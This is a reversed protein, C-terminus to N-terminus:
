CGQKSADEWVPNVEQLTGKQMRMTRWEFPAFTDTYDVGAETIRIRATRPTDQENFLRLIYGDGAEAKKLTELRVGDVQWATEPKKGSGSPFYSVARPYQNFCQAVTGVRETIKERKGTLLLFRFSQEGLGSRFHYRDQPLRPRDHIRHCTYAPSRVLSQWIGTDNLMLGYVGDNVVALAGEKGKAMAWRQAVNEYETTLPKIGAVDQATYDAGEFTDPFGIRLMSDRQQWNVMLSIEVDTGRKPLKYTLLAESAEYCLMVEIVTRVDGDEVIRIPHLRHSNCGAFRAAQEPTMLQFSGLYKDVRIEEILWPDCSDAYVALRGVGKAGCPLGDACLAYLSGDERSISLSLRGNDFQFDEEVCIDRMLEPRKDRMFLQVDFRTVGMPAATGEFAIKKRWDINMNSHEKEMQSSLPTSGQYVTGDTYTDEWNQDALMFECEFVGSVPYPHPNCVILPITGEQAPAEGSALAFMARVALREAIDIGHNLRRVSAEEAPKTLTGPLIDHFQCFLLDEYAEDLEQKPYAAGGRMENLASLKEAVSLRNELSVHAKKLRPMDTYCGVDMPNFAREEKPLCNIDVTRMYADPTSHFIHIREKEREILRDIDELDRRSPGGGHDGIGWCRLLPTDADKGPQSHIRIYDEIAEAAHGYLTNYGTNLKYAIIQSDGYGNWCVLQPVDDLRGEAAGSEPRMYMYARYGAKQLLQVLGKSHGFCDMSVATEPVVGFRNRFYWLGVQMQRLLSEANPMNCDPQVYWGGMIRWAGKKVLTQIREFLAPDYEETWKYLLAENHNFVFGNFKECFDVAVRFTSLTAGAGEPWEWQWVPDLHANCILHVDRM